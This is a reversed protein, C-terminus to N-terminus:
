KIIYKIDFKVKYTYTRTPKQIDFVPTLKQPSGDQKECQYFPCPCGNKCYKENPCVDGAGDFSRTLEFCISECLPSITGKTRTSELVLSTSCIHRCLKADYFKKKQCRRLHVLNEEETFSLATAKQEKIKSIPKPVVFEKTEFCQKMLHGCIDLRETKVCKKYNRHCTSTLFTTVSRSRQM